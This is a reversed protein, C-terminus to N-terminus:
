PQAPATPGPEIWESPVGALNAEVRLEQLRREARAVEERGHEIERTLQYSLPGDSSGPAAGPATMQWNGAASAKEELKAQADHLAEQASDREERVAQFRSRWEVRTAGGRRPVPEHVRDPVKLLQDLGVAPAEGDAARSTFALLAALALGAAGLSAAELGM